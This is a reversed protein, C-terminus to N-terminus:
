LEVHTAKIDETLLVEEAGFIEDDEDYEDGDDGDFMTDFDADDLDELDDDVGEDDDAPEDSDQTASAQADTASDKEPEAAVNEDVLKIAEEPAKDAKKDDGLNLTCTMAPCAAKMGELGEPSLSTPIDCCRLPNDQLLIERVNGIGEWHEKGFSSLQNQGLSLTQLKTNHKFAGEAIHTIENSGMSLYEINVLPALLTPSITEYGCMGIYLKKLSSLGGFVSDGAAVLAETNLLDLFELSKLNKFLSPHIEEIENGGLYLTRLGTLDDFVGAPVSKLQCGWMALEQLGTMGKFVDPHLKELRIMKLNLEKCTSPDGGGTRMLVGNERIIHIEGCQTGQIKEPEGFVVSASCMLAALTWRIAKSIM